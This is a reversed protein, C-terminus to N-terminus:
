NIRFWKYGYGNLNITANGNQTAINCNSNLIDVLNKPSSSLKVQKPKMSFNHLTVLTKGQYTYRIEMVDETGSDVVEWKGFGFEPCTKRFKVMKTIWVLLSNKDKEESAVNIKHYNYEGQNIIPRFPKAAITFGANKENSWQMPTRVSLREKLSLDDGMGIEDGYRMVPTGPLSFLLSYALKLQTPNHLMTTIRRRIGRNYLQMNKQPGFKAYVENRQNTTLRGLDVEDHNRLFNAWQSNPQINNSEKLSEELEKSKGSALAYFLHQNAFFNFLMQMREGKKGFYDLNEKPLVNAEGLLFADPKRAQVFHRMGIIFNFDHDLNKVNPRMEEIIFPVADLRFGDMGQEMWYNLIHYAEAKVTPNDYNLDPQFKYFRHYYYEHTQPDLSWIEKQVGPFVMGQNYDKPQNKTWVYWSHYKSTISKEAQQFWPHKNSTHNLVMDMIVRIKHAKAQKMFDVFDQHTGCKPDIGYFNSIDYGDDLGPSPQFPSLWIIEVGLGKLYDLKSTLGKFDGYGDGNSDKFTHVDLNYIISNKYWLKETGPNNQPFTKTPLLFSLLLLLRFNKM